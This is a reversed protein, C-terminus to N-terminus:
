WIKVRATEPRYLKDGEKVGFAKYFEPMNAIIGNCRYESPSHVDTLLRNRMEADRYKRAWVQAWGIFFRQEGTFGDLVPAEKGKLSLKYAHLAVNLGGIDGINEGLTMAGNVHMSDIPNFQDYQNILMKTRDAFKVSDVDAWWNRLNGDGDSRSGQDDFGHSIEHGIVAGIGGYNIADDANLDFFPPQLIAAPFVIENMSPNYYANVTQPFMGWENRDIPKGYKAVMEHYDFAQSNRINQLLDGRVIKLKSYDKWVDPYGIKTNFKSLKELAQKKTADSMWELTNIREAFAAKLNSVLENMRRKAEPKFYKDVYIKGVVEGVSGEVLEVGRKWRPTNSAVGRLTKSYFNFRENVFDSSLFAAASNITKYTFYDKWDQVSYKTLLSNMNTLYDPQRVIIASMSPMGAAKFYTAWNINPTQKQLDTITFKNYTKNDDRNQTRTWQFGAMETEMKMIKNAIEANNPIKALKLINSIYTVYAERIAQFKADTKFYYDRDPLGTGSQNIYFIYETSKKADQDIYIGFPRQVGSQTLVGLLESLGKDAKYNKIMMLDNEIPKIGLKEITVTDMFSLYLDGVKQMNENAFKPASKAAEEIIERLRKQSLDDLMTFSGYNSKDAPIETNKLWTGNVYRYLDDQPRVSEDFNAKIVGSNMSQAMTMQSALICIVGLMLKKM